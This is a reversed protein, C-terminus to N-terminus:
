VGRPRLLAGVVTVAACAVFVGALTLPEVGAGALPSGVAQGAAICLFSIGVGYSARDPFLRTAWVLLIGTLAIYAGGFLAAAVIAAAPEAALVAFVVSAVAMAAMGLVWSRGIGLRHVGAGALAGVVGAAGIVTWVLGTLSPSGGQDAIAERGLTWVAISGMGMLGSCLLLRRTGAPLGTFPRGSRPGPSHRRPARDEAPVFRWVAVTVAAAVVAFVAWAVRWHGQLAFAVPGSVLVGVGTGANVLTQAQDKRASRVWRAVAGAMPPSAIGTSSGAVILGAALMTPSAATAVMTIGVTASAGALLGVRRPGWRTTLATAVVIAVCYGVYSGSGLLGSVVPTLAFEAAFDPSFLGYTFRALGYCTAILATGSAVLWGPRLRM